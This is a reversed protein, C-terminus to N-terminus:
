IAQDSHYPPGMDQGNRELMYVSNAYMSFSFGSTQVLYATVFLWMYIDSQAENVTQLQIDM